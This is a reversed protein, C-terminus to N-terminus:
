GLLLRLEVRLERLQHLHDPLLKADIWLREGVARLRRRLPFTEGGVADLRVDIADKGTLRLRERNRLRQSRHQLRLVLARNIGRADIAGDLTSLLNAGCGVRRPGGVLGLRLNREGSHRATCLRRGWIRLRRRRGRRCLLRRRCFLWLRRPVEMRYPTYGREIFSM